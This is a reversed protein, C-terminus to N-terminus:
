QGKKIIKSIFHEKEHIEGEQPLYKQTEAIEDKIIALEQYHDSLHNLQEVSENLMRNLQKFSSNKYDEKMLMITMQRDLFRTMKWSFLFTLMILFLSISGLTLLYQRIEKEYLDGDNILYVFFDVQDWKLFGYSHFNGDDYVTETYGNVMRRTYENLVPKQDVEGRNSAIPLFDTNFITVDGKGSDIIDNWLVEVDILLTKYEQIQNEQMIKRHIAYISPKGIPEPDLYRNQNFRASLLSEKVKEEFTNEQAWTHKLEFALSYHYENLLWPIKSVDSPNKIDLENNLRNTLSDLKHILLEKEKSVSEYYREDTAKKFSSFAIVNMVILLMTIFGLLLGMVRYEFSRRM